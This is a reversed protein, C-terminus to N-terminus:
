GNGPRQAAGEARVRADHRATAPDMKTPLSYTGARRLVAFVRQVADPVRSM